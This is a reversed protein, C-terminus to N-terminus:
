KQLGVVGFVALSCGANTTDFSITKITKNPSPNNWVLAHLYRRVGTESDIISELEPVNPQNSNDTAAFTNEAMTWKITQKTNDTYTITSTAIEKGFYQYYSTMTPIVLQAAKKNVKLVLSDKAKDGGETLLGYLMVGKGGDKGDPAVRLRGLMPSEQTRPYGLDKLSVNAYPSLDAYWGGTTDRTLGTDDLIRAFAEYYNYDWKNAPLDGGNWSADAAVIYSAYQKRGEFFSRPDLSYGAWTTQMTGIAHQGHTTNEAAQATASTFNVINTPTYWTAAATDFGESTLISISKYEEPPAPAYHWDAIMMDKPLQDRLRKAEEASEANCADNAEKPGLFLDGWIMTRIGRKKLFNHWYQLDAIILRQAGIKRATENKPFTPAYIEDHGIHIISPKFISIAEDYIKGCIDYVEPKTADYCYPADPDDALHKYTPNDLFWECHGYTNILPVIDIGNEKAVKAITRVDRNKMGYKQNFMKPFGTWQMYDLEYIVPNIRLLPMLKSFIIKHLDLADKGTFFHISRFPFTAYDDIAARRVGFNGDAERLLQRYAGLGAWLGRVTPATIRTYNKYLARLGADENVFLTYQDYKKDEPEGKLELILSAKDPAAEFAAGTKCFEKLAGDLSAIMLPKVEATDTTFGEFAIGLKGQPLMTTGKGWTIKKPRPVIYDRGPDPQMVVKDEIIGQEDIVNPTAADAPKSKTPPFSFDITIDIPKNKDTRAYFVGHVFLKTNDEWTNSRYDAVIVPHSRKVVDMKVPGMITEVELHKIDPAIMMETLSTTTPPELTFVGSTTNGEFDEVRYPRGAYWGAAASAFSAEFNAETSTTMTGSVRIRMKRDGLLSITQLGDFENEKGNIISSITDTTQAFSKEFAENEFYGAYHHNWIDNVVWFYSDSSFPIGDVTIILGRPKNFELRLGNDEILGLSPPAATKAPGEACVAPGACLLLTATAFFILFSHM